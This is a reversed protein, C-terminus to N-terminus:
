SLLLVMASKSSRARGHRASQWCQRATRVRHTAADEVQAGAEAGGGGGGCLPLLGAPWPEVAGETVGQEQEADGDGRPALM